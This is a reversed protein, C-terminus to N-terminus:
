KWESSNDNQAIKRFRRPQSALTSLRPTGLEIRAVPNTRPEFGRGRRFSLWSTRRRGSPFRLWTINWKYQKNWLLGVLTFIIFYKYGWMRGKRVKKNSQTGPARPEIVLRQEPLHARVWGLPPDFVPGPLRRFDLRGASRRSGQNRKQAGAM